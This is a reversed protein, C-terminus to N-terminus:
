KETPEQKGFGLLMKHDKPEFFMIKFDYRKGPELAEKMRDPNGFESVHALGQVNPEVEVFAGFPNLKMVVGKVSDGKKYKDAVKAWPDEKLAKLSLSMKDGQIDIIKATVKDGVRLISRPDDILVWDIESLHILGEITTGQLRMFAGFDVVGTIEGEVTDGKAYQSLAQKMEDQEQWKETFILKNEEANCDLVKVQLMTGALKQLGQLIKEKDGGDVRPYNKSSLQSAPLFGEVGMAELILGGSNAKKVMLELITGERRAARLDVWQKDRSAEELSLEVYGDENDIDIIKASVTDGPNLKKITEQANYYERGYIIGTGSLGLDLFIRTGAKEIVNGEILDGAKLVPVATVKLLAEMPHRPRLGALAADEGNKQTDIIEVM